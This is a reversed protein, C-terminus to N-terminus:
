NSIPCQSDKAIGVRRFSLDLADVLMLEGCLQEGLSLLVKIAQLAQMTGLVGAVPALIGNEVCNAAGDGEESYLCQYCPQNIEYGDFV